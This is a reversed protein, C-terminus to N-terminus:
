MVPLGALLQTATLSSGLPARASTSTVARNFLYFIRFLNLPMTQVPPAKQPYFLCIKVSQFLSPFSKKGSWRIAKMEM